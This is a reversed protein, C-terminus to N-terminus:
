IYVFKRTMNSLFKSRDTILQFIVKKLNSKKSTLKLKNKLNSKKKFKPFNQIKKSNKKNKLFIQTIIM